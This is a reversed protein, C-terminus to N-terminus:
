TQHEKPGRKNGHSSLFSFTAPRPNLQVRYSFFTFFPSPKLLILGEPKLLTWSCLLSDWPIKSVPVLFPIAITNAHTFHLAM